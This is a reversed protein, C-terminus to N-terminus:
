INFSFCKCFMNEISMYPVEGAITEHSQFLPVMATQGNEKKISAQLFVCPLVSIYIYIYIFVMLATIAKIQTLIDFVDLRM